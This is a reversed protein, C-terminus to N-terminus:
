YGNMKRAILISSFVCILGLAFCVLVNYNAMSGGLIPDAWPIESCKAQPMNKIREILEAASGSMDPTGCGKLGEWWHREVGSHFFAIGANGLFTVGSLFILSTAHPKNRTAIVLFGLLIAIGYPWRQYICLVCPHLGFVYQSILATILALSSLGAIIAGMHLPSVLTQTLKTGVM